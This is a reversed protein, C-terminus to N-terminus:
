FLVQITNDGLRNGELQFILNLITLPKSNKDINIVPIKEAPPQLAKGVQIFQDFAADITMDLKTDPDTAGETPEKRTEETQVVLKSAETEPERAEVEPDQVEV